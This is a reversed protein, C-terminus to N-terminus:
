ARIYHMIFIFANLILECTWIFEFSRVNLFYVYLYIYIQSSKILPLCWTNSDNIEHLVKHKKSDIFTNAIEEWIQKISRFLKCVNQNSEGRFSTHIFRIIASKYACRDNFAYWSCVYNLRNDVASLKLLSDNPKQSVIAEFNRRCIDIGTLHKIPFLYAISCIYLKAMILTKIEACVLLKIHKNISTNYIIYCVIGQVYSLPLPFHCFRSFCLICYYVAHIHKNTNRTQSIICIYASFTYLYSYTNHTTHVIHVPHVSEVRILIMKENANCVMRKSTWTSLARWTYKWLVYLTFNYM